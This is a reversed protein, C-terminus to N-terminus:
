KRMDHLSSSDPSSILVMPEDPAVSLSWDADGDGRWNNTAVYVSEEIASVGEEGSVDM